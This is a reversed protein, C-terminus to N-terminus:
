LWGCATDQDRLPPGRARRRHYDRWRHGRVQTHLADPPVMDHDPWFLDANVFDAAEVFEKFDNVSYYSSDGEAPFTITTTQGRWAVYDTFM